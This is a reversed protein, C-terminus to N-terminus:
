GATNSIIHIHMFATALGTGVQCEQWQTHKLYFCLAFLLIFLMFIVKDNLYNIRVLELSIGLM